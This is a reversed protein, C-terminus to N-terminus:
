RLLSTLASEARAAKRAKLEASCTFIMRARAQQGRQWASEDAAGVTLPRYLADMGGFVGRWVSSPVEADPLADLEQPVGRETAGRISASIREVASGRLTSFSFARRLAAHQAPRSAPDQASIGRGRLGLELPKRPPPPPPPWREASKSREVPQGGDGSSGVRQAAGSSVIDHRAQQRDDADGRPGTPEEARPPSANRAKMPPPLARPPAPPLAAVDAARGQQADEDVRVRDAAAKVAPSHDARGPGRSHSRPRKVADLEHSSHSGPRKTPSEGSQAYAAPPSPSRSARLAAPATAPSVAAPPLSRSHTRTAARAVHVPSRAAHVPKRPRPSHSPSRSSLQVRATSRRRMHAPSGGSSASSSRRRKKRSRERSKHKRKRDSSKRHKEKSRHRKARLAPSGDHKHHSRPPSAERQGARRWGQSDVSSERLRRGPSLERTREEAERSGVQRNPPAEALRGRPLVRAQAASATVSSTGIPARSVAGFDRVRGPRSSAGAGPSRDADASARVRAGQADVASVEQHQPRASWFREEPVLGIPALRDLISGRGAAGTASAAGLEEGRHGDRMGEMGTDTAARRNTGGRDASRVVRDGDPSSGDRAKFQAGQRRRPEAPSAQRPRPEGRSSVPANSHADRRSVPAADDRSRVLQEGTGPSNRVGRGRTQLALM